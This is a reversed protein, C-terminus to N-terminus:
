CIVHYTQICLTEPDCRSRDTSLNTWIKFGLGEFIGVDEISPGLHFLFIIIKPVKATDQMSDDNNNELDPIPSIPTPIEFSLFIETSPFKPWAGIEMPSETENELIESKELKEPNECQKSNPLETSIKEPVNAPSPPRCPTGNKSVVKGYVPDDFKFQYM